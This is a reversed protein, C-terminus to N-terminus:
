GSAGRGIAASLKVTRAPGFKVAGPRPASHLFGDIRLYEDALARPEGLSIAVPNVPSYSFDIGLAQLGECFRRAAPGNVPMARWQDARDAWHFCLGTGIPEGRVASTSAEALRGEAGLLYAPNPLSRRPPELFVVGSYLAPNVFPLRYLFNAVRTQALLVVALPDDDFGPFAAHLQKEVAQDFEFEGQRDARSPVGLILVTYGMDAVAMAERQYRPDANDGRSDTAMVVVGASPVGGAAPAVMLERVPKGGFNAAWRTVRYRGPDIAPQCGGIEYLKRATGSYLYFTGPDATSDARFAVVGSRADVALPTISKGAMLSTVTDGFNLYASERRSSADLAHEGAADWARLNSSRERGTVVDISYYDYGVRYPVSLRGTYALTSWTHSVPIEWNFLTPLSAGVPGDHRWRDRGIFPNLVPIRNLLVSATQRYPVIVHRDDLVRFKGLAPYDSATTIIKARGGDPDFAMLAGAATYVGGSLGARRVCLNTYVVVRGGVWGLAQAEPPLPVESPKYLPVVRVSTEATGVRVKGILHGPHATPVVYVFLDGRDRKTYALYVGDPSIAAKEYDGPSFRLELRKALVDRSEAGRVACVASLLM